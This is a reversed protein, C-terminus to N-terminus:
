YYIIYKKLKNKQKIIDKKNIEIIKNKNIIDGFEFNINFALLFDSIQLNHEGNLIIIKKFLSVAIVIYEYINSAIIESNKILDINEDKIDKIISINIKNTTNAEYLLLPELFLNPCFFGLEEIRNKTLPGRVFLIIKPEIIENKIKIGYGYIINNQMDPNTYYLKSKNYNNIDKNTHFIYLKKNNKIIKKYFYSYLNNELFYINPKIDEKKIVNISSLSKIQQHIKKDNISWWNHYITSSLDWSILPKSVYEQIKNKISIKNLFTDLQYRIPYFNEIFIKAFQYNIIYFCSNIIKDIKIFKYLKETFDAPGSLHILFPESLNIDITNIFYQNIKNITKSNIKIDDEIIAAIKLKNNYIEQICKLHSLCIAIQSLSYISSTKSLLNNFTDKVIQDDYFIANVIQYKDPFYKELQPIMFSRRITETELSICYVQEIM